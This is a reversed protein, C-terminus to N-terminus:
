SSRPLLSPEVPHIGDKELPEKLIPFLSKAAGGIGSEREEKNFIIQINKLWKIIENSEYLAEENIVLCPVQRKGGIEVLDKTAEPHTGIDISPITKNLSSLYANVSKCFPCTSRGYLLLKPKEIGAKKVQKETEYEKYAVAFMDDYIHILSGISRVDGDILREDFHPAEMLDQDMDIM